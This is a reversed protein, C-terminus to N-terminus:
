PKRPRPGSFPAGQGPQQAGAESGSWYGYGVEAEPEGIITLVAEADAPDMPGPDCFSEHQCPWGKEGQPAWGPEAFASTAFLAAVVTLTVGVSRRVRM